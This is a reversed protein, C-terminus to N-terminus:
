KGLSRGSNGLLAQTGVCVVEHLVNRFHWMLRFVSQFWVFALHVISFKIYGNVIFNVLDHMSRILTVTLHDFLNVEKSSDGFTHESRTANISFVIKFYALELWFDRFM